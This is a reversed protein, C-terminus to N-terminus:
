IEKIIKKIRRLNELISGDTSKRIRAERESLLELVDDLEGSVLASSVYKVAVEKKKYLSKLEEFKKIEGSLVKEKVELPYIEKTIEYSMKLPLAEAKEKNVGELSAIFNYRNIYNYVNSKKFGISEIWKRFVGDGNNSLKDQTEKFIRGLDTYFNKSLSHIKFTQNKLYDLTEDTVIEEDFNFDYKSLVEDRNLVVEFNSKRTEISSFLNGLGDM